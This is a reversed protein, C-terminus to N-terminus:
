PHPRDLNLLSMTLAGKREAKVDLEMPVHCQSRFSRPWVRAVKVVKVVKDLLCFFSRWRGDCMWCVM